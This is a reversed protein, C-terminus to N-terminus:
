LIELAKLLYLQLTVQRRSMNLVKERGEETQTLLYNKLIIRAVQYDSWRVKEHVSDKIKVGLKEGAKARASINYHIKFSRSQAEVIEEVPQPQIKLLEDNATEELIRKGRETKTIVASHKIPDNKMRQLWIDGCAIDGFYGIHDFCHMCKPECFYYLNQYKSFASFKKSVVQGNEYEATLRGRWHGSRYRFDKLEVEPSPRLRDVILQTLEPSSLHGCFLTIVCTIKEQLAPSSEIAKSLLRADCPLCVVALNGEFNRILEMAQSSFRTSIYNSGQSELLDAHTRALKFNAEVKGDVVELNCVLAADIAHRNLLNDLIATVTGGSAANSRTLHDTAYSFFSGNYPGIFKNIQEESWDTKLIRDVWKELAM